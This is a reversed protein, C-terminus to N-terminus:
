FEGLIQGDARDGINRWTPLNVNDSIFRTSGDSMTVQVGGTHKSRAPYPGGADYWNCDYLGEDPATRNFNPTHYASFYWSGHHAYFWSYGRLTHSTIGGAGIGAANCNNTPTNVHQYSKTGVLCESAMVTNSTGDTVDRIRTRSNSAFLGKHMGNNKAAGRWYANNNGSNWAPDSFAAEDGGGGRIDTGTGGVSVVYNTPAFTAQGTNGRSGPDSPCRLSPIDTGYVTSNGSTAPHTDFNIKNYIVSQDFFPLIMAAWGLRSSSSIDRISQPGAWYMTGYPFCGHTDHYNHLALGIQKLNNKCTSRRAAERAQQVAPLLLAILVAIIAIVVLLEILTFATSRKVLIRM